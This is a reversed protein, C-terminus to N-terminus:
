VRTWTIGSGHVLGQWPISFQSLLSGNDYVDFESVHDMKDLLRFGRLQRKLTIEGGLYYKAPPLLNAPISAQFEYVGPEVPLLSQGDPEFDHSALVTELNANYIKLTLHTGFGATNLHVKMRVRIEDDHAFRNVPRGAADCTHLKLVQAEKWPQVAAEELVVAERSQLYMELAAETDGIFKLSGRELLMCRPCLAKIAGLNHSVFLVTRGQTTVEQMKNLCKNQFAIDGVALVEDVLLIEPELHAAVSFALRTRMGSSYFKLPTDIFEEVGSFDVIAEFKRAIEQRRMGLVAGNLYVNERGSLELHFGTGVELLSGVRGRMRVKGETPATIRALVKLLTTKGAGNNGIIGLPEGHNLEFSLNRLAWIDTAGKRGGAGGRGTLVDGIASSMSAYGIGGREPGKKAATITYRKSLGEARVAFNNM